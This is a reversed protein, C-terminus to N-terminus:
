KKQYVRIWDIEFNAPLGSSIKDAVVTAANLHMKQGPVPPKTTLFEKNNIKWSMKGENWELRFIYFHGHKLGSINSVLENVSSGDQRNLMGFRNKIGTEVINIQQNNDNGSLFLANITGKVPAYKVKAEWIGEKGWFSNSSNICGSSYSFEKEIFGFPLQWVLGSTKEERTEIKLTKGDTKINEGSTFAQLDGQQSFNRQLHQMARHSITQWKETDLKPSNFEDAFVLQWNKFFDLESNNKYKFYLEIHPNKKLGLYQQWKQFEETKEWKKKDELYTKRKLFEESSTRKKLEEFRQRENSSEMLQYNKWSSSKEFKCFFRIDDSLKLQRYKESKKFAETKEFKRRDELYTKQKLFKESSTLEKLEEFRKLTSSGETKKYLKYASSSIFKLYNKVAESKKLRSFEKKVNKDALGKGISIKLVDFRKLEDSEAFATQKKLDSSGKLKLYTKIAKSKELRKLEKLQKEEQSGKFIEAESKKKEAAFSGNEMFVKLENYEEPLESDSIQLFRQLDTSALTVYFQKLKKDKTLQRFEKLFEEERSGKFQLSEIEKKKAAFAESHVFAELENFVKLEESKEVECFEHYAALLREHEQEIKETPKILGFSSMLFMKMSMNLYNPGKESRCLFLLLQM